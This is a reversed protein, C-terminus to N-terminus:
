EVVVQSTGEGGVGHISLYEEPVPPLEKVNEPVLAGLWNQLPEHVIGNTSDACAFSIYSANCPSPLLGSALQAALDPPSSSAATSAFRTTTNLYYSRRQQALDRKHGVGTSPGCYGYRYYTETAIVAYCKCVKKPAGCGHNVTTCTQTHSCTQSNIPYSGGNSNGSPARFPDPARDESTSAEPHELITKAVEDNLVETYENRDRKTTPGCNCRDFCYAVMMRVIRRPSTGCILVEGVCRCELNRRHELRSACLHLLSPFAPFDSPVYTPLSGPCEIADFLRGRRVSSVSLTAAVTPRCSDLVFFILLSPSFFSSFHM